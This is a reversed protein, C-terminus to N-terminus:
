YYYTLLTSPLHALIDIATGEAVADRNEKESMSLLLLEFVLSERCTVHVNNLTAEKLVFPAVSPMSFASNCLM